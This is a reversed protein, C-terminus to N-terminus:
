GAGERRRVSLLKDVEAVLDGREDRVEAVFAPEIRGLQDVERRIEEIRERSIAFRASVRGRGPRRYRITGVKDWVVYGPGLETALILAYFPDTMAFLSGGFHTGFYNANWAHLTMRSEFAVPDGGIKRVRIGAGAYPPWFNILRLRWSDGRAM